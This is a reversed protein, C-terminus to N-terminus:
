DGKVAQHCQGPVIWEFLIKKGAFTGRTPDFGQSNYSGTNMRVSRDMEALIKKNTVVYKGFGGYYRISRWKGVVFVEIYHDPPDHVVRAKLVCFPDEVPHCGGYEKRIQHDVLAKM